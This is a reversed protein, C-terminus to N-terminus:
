PLERPSEEPRRLMRLGAGLVGVAATLNIAALVIVRTPASWTGALLLYMWLMFAGWSCAVLFAGVLGLLSGAVMTRVTERAELSALQIHDVVLRQASEVFRDVAEIPASGTEHSSHHVVASM